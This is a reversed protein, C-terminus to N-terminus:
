RHHADEPEPRRFLHKLGPQHSRDRIQRSISSQTLKISIELEVSSASCIEYGSGLYGEAPGRLLMETAPGGCLLVSRQCSCPSFPPLVPGSHGRAMVALVNLSGHSPFDACNPPVEVGTLVRLTSWRAVDRGEGGAVKPTRGQWDGRRIKMTEVKSEEDTADIRTPM